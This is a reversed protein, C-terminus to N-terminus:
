PKQAKIILTEDELTTKTVPHFGIHHLRNFVDTITKLTLKPAELTSQFLKILRPFSVKELPHSYLWDSDLDINTVTVLHGGRNLSNYIKRLLTKDYGGADCELVMDFGKPLEDQNFDLARYEIRDAVSTESAIERGVVCVKPIDIVVATLNPNKKLLALSIVGSGGGVDMLRKVGSMELTQALKEGLSYHLDYLVRTFRRAYDINEEMQKFWNYPQQAQAVLVSKPHSIHTTLNYGTLYRVTEQAIFSWSDPNYRELIASRAVYSPIYKKDQKELLNIEVLLELWYRCRDLPIQYKKSIDELSLPLEELHWFLHLELATGLAASLNHMMLFARVDETTLLEVKM